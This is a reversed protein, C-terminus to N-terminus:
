IDIKAPILSPSISLHITSSFEIIEVFLIVALPIHELLLLSALIILQLFLALMVSIEFMTLRAGKTAPM